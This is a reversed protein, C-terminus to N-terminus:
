ARARKVKTAQRLFDVFVKLPARMHRRSPYYLFFGDTRPAWDDLVTELEGQAIFSQAYDPMLYLLGLGDRAGRLALPLDNVILTGEVAVEFSKGNRVFRWPLLVDGSLRLRICNHSALDDPTKPRGRRELYIRSAVIIPRVENTVRVAIM